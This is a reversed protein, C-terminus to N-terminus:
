EHAQKLRNIYFEYTSTNGYCDYGIVTCLINGEPIYSMPEPTQVITDVCCFNSQKIEPTYDPTLIVGASIYQTTIKTGCCGFSLVILILYLLKNM